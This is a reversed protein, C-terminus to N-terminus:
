CFDSSESPPDWYDKPNGESDGWLDHAANACAEFCGMMGTTSKTAKPPVKSPQSMFRRPDGPHAGASPAPAPSPGKATAEVKNVDVTPAPSETSADVDTTDTDNTADISHTNAQLQHTNVSTDKAMADTFHARDTDSFRSWNRKGDDSLPKFVEPPLMPRTSARSAAYAEFGSEDSLDSTGLYSGLEDDSLQSMNVNLTKSSPVGDTLTASHFLLAYYQPYSYPEQKHSFVQELERTAVARLNEAGHVATIMYDKAQQPTIMIEARDTFDNHRDICHDLAILFNVQNKGPTIRANTILIRLNRQRLISSPSATADAKLAAMMARADYPPGPRSHKRVIAKGTTTKVKHHMVAVVWAMQRQLNAQAQVTTPAYTPDIVNQLDQASLIATVKVEWNPYDANDKLEPYQSMDPKVQWSKEKPM